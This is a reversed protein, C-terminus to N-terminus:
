EVAQEATSSQNNAAVAVSRLKIKQDSDSYLKISVSNITKPEQQGKKPWVAATGLTAYQQLRLLMTRTDTQGDTV